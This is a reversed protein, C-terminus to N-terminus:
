VKTLYDFTGQDDSFDFYRVLEPIENGISEEYDTFYKRSLASM